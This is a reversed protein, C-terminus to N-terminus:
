PGESQVTQLYRLQALETAARRALPGAGPKTVEGLVVIAGALGLLALLALGSQLPTDFGLLRIVAASSDSLWASVPDSDSRTSAGGLIALMLAVCTTRGVFRVCRAIARALLSKPGFGRGADAEIVADCLQAFLDILFDKPAYDVPAQVFVALPPRMQLKQRVPSPAVTLVSELTRRLLTTKGVGRRGSVAISTAGLETILRHVRRSCTREIWPVDLDRGSLGPTWDVLLRTPSWRTAEDNFVMRLEPVLRESVAAFWGDSARTSWRLVRRVIVAVTANAAAVM